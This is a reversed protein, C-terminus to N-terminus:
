VPAECPPSTTSSAGTAAGCTSSRPRCPQITGTRTEIVFQVIRDPDPAALPKLLVADVVSFIAVNTGIGLTLTAVVALAFPPAKCLTRAVFKLDQVIGDLPPM